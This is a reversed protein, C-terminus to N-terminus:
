LRQMRSVPPASTRSAARWAQPGRNAIALAKKEFTELAIKQALNIDGTVVGEVTFCWSRVELGRADLEHVNFVKGRCIRYRNGTDCGVVEFHERADYQALQDASLWSRLLQQAREEAEWYGDAARQADVHSLCHRLGQNVHSRLLSALSLM